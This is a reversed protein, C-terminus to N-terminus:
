IEAKQERSLLSEWDIDVPKWTPPKSIEIHLLSFIGRHDIRENNWSVKLFAPEVSVGADSAAHVIAKKIDGEIMPGLNNLVADVKKRFWLNIAPKLLPLFIKELTKQSSVELEAVAFTGFSSEDKLWRIKSTARRGGKLDASFEIEESELYSLHVSDHLIDSLQEEARIVARIASTLEQYSFIVRINLTSSSQTELEM